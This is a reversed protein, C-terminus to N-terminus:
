IWVRQSPLHILDCYQKCNVTLGRQGKLQSKSDLCLYSEHWARKQCPPSTIYTHGVIGDNCRVHKVESGGCTCLLWLYRLNFCVYCLVYCDTSRHSSLSNRYTQLTQWSAATYTCTPTKHISWILFFFSSSSIANLNKIRILYLILYHLSKFLPLM